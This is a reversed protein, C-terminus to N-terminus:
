FKLANTQKSPTRIDRWGFHFSVIEYLLPESFAKYGFVTGFNCTQTISRYINAAYEQKLGSNQSM